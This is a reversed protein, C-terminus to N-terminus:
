FPIRYVIGASAALSNLQRDSRLIRSYQAEGLRLSIHHAMHFDVGMLASIDASVQDPYPKLNVGTGTVYWLSSHAAGGLAAAYPTFRGFHMAARPGALIAEQHEYGGWRNISGRAELGFLHPSQIYGGVTGGWLTFDGIIHFTPKVATFTGFIAVSPPLRVSPMVQASVRYGHLSCLLIALCSLGRWRLVPQARNDHRGPELRIGTSDRLSGGLALCQGIFCQKLFASISLGDTEAPSTRKAPTEQHPTILM